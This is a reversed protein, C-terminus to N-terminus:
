GDPFNFEHPVQIPSGDIISVDRGILWLGNAQRVLEGAHWGQVRMSPGGDRPRIIATERVRVQARASTVAVELLEWQVRETFAAHFAELAGRLAEKGVREDGSPGRHRVDPTVVSLGLEVDGSEMSAFWTAYAARISAHEIREPEPPSM